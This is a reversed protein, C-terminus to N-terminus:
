VIYEWTILLFFHSRLDAMIEHLIFVPKLKNDKFSYPSKFAIKKDKKKDENKTIKIDKPRSWECFM